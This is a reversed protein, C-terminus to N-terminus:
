RKRLIIVDQFNMCADADRGAWWGQNFQKISLGAIEAIKEIFSIRYAINANKVRKDHLFYDGFRYPFFPESAKDLYSESDQDIVFFTAFCHGDPKLVRSIEQMYNKVEEPQMHTFVSTLIVLDFCKDNYPFVFETAKHKSNLNYLDNTLPIHTFTFNPYKKYQKECWKIGDPVVDFGQYSGDVSLFETLPRALRGIGCGIDLIHHEPKLTCTSIIDQLMKNGDAVFNGQGTFIKGKQPVLPPRKNLVTDILDIPFFVLRRALRRQKPQLQYYLTRILKM